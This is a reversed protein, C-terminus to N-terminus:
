LFCVPQELNFSYCELWDSTYPCLEVFDADSKEKQTFNPHQPLSHARALSILSLHLFFPKIQPHGSPAFLEQPIVSFRRQTEKWLFGSAIGLLHPNNLSGLLSDPLLTIQIEFRELTSLPFVM